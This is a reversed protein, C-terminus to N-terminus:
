GAAVTVEVLVWPSPGPPPDPGLESPVSLHAKKRGTLCSVKWAPNKSLRRSKVSARETTKKEVTTSPLEVTERGSKPRSIPLYQPTRNGDRRSYEFAVHSAVTLKGM